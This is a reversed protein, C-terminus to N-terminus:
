HPNFLVFVSKGPCFPTRGAPSRQVKGVAQTRGTQKTDRSFELTDERLVCNPNKKKANAKKKRGEKRGEKRREKRGEKKGEKRGEKRGGKRKKKKKSLVPTQASLQM